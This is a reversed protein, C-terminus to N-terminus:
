GVRVQSVRGQGGAAGYRRLGSRDKQEKGKKGSRVQGSRVQGTETERNNNYFLLVGRWQAALLPWISAIERRRSLPASTSAFSM